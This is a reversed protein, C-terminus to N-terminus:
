KGEMNHINILNLIKKLNLPKPLISHAGNIVADIALTDTPFATIIIIKSDPKAELISKTVEAGNRGPMDIDVLILDYNNKIAENEGELPSSFGTVSHGKDELVVRIMHTIFREDDIVLIKKL